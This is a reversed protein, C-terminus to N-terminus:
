ILFAKKWRLLHFTFTLSEGASFDLKDPEEFTSSFTIWKGKCHFPKVEWPYSASLEETGLKWSAVGATVAASLKLSWPWFGELIGELPSSLTIYSRKSNLLYKRLSAHWTDKQKGLTHFLEAILVWLYMVFYEKSAYRCYCGSSTMRKFFILFFFVFPIIYESLNKEM